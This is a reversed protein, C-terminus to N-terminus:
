SSRCGCLLLHLPLQAPLCSRCQRSARASGVQQELFRWMVHLYMRPGRRQLRVDYSVGWKDMVLNRLEQGTM